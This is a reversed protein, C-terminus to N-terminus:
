EYYHMWPRILAAAAHYQRMALLVVVLATVVLLGLVLALRRYQVPIAFLM